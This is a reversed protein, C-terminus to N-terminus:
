SDRSPQDSGDKPYSIEDIITRRLVVKQPGDNSQVVAHAVLERRLVEERELAADSKARTDTATAQVHRRRVTQAPDSVVAKAVHGFFLGLNRALSM